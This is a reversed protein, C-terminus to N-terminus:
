TGDARGRRQAVRQMGADGGVHESDRGLNMLLVVVPRALAPGGQRDVPCKGLALFPQGM